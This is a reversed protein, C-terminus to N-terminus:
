FNMKISSQEAKMIMKDELLSSTTIVWLKLEVQTPDFYFKFYKQEESMLIQIFKKKNSNLRNVPLM